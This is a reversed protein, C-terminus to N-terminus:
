DQYFAKKMEEQYGKVLEIIFGTRGNKICERYEKIATSRSAGYSYMYAQIFKDKM